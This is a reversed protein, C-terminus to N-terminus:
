VGFRYVRNRYPTRARFRKNFESVLEYNSTRILQGPVAIFIMNGNRDFAAPVGTNWAPAFLYFLEAGLDCCNLMYRVMFTSATRIRQEQTGPPEDPRQRFSISISPMLPKDPAALAAERAVRSQVDLSLRQVVESGSDPPPVTPYDTWPAYGAPQYAQLWNWMSEWDRNFAYIQSQDTRVFPLWSYNAPIQLSVSLDGGTFHSRRIPGQPTQHEQSSCHIDWEGCLLHSGFVAQFPEFVAMALGDVFSATVASSALLLAEGNIPDNASRSLPENTVLPAFPNFPQFNQDKNRKAFWKEVTSTRVLMAEPDAKEIFGDGPLPFKDSFTNIMGYPGTGGVDGRSEVNGVLMGPRPLGAIQLADRMAAFVGIQGPTGGFFELTKIPGFHRILISQGAPEGPEPWIFGDEPQRSIFWSDRDSDIGVILLAYQLPKNIVAFHRDFRSTYATVMVRFDDALVTANPYALRLLEDSTNPDRRLRIDIRLMPFTNPLTWMLDTEPLTLADPDRPINSGAEVHVVPLSPSAGFKQLRGPRPIMM